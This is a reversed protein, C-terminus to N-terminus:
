SVSGGATRDARELDGDVLALLELRWVPPIRLPSCLVPSALGEADASDITELVHIANLKSALRYREGARPEAVVPPRLLVNLFSM